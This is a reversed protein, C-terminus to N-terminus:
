ATTVRGDGNVDARLARNHWAPKALSVLSAMTTIGPFALEGQDVQQGNSLNITFYEGSQEFFYLLGDIVSLASDLNYAITPLPVSSNLSSDVRVLQTSNSASLSIASAYANGVHDFTLGLYAIVNTIPVDYVP